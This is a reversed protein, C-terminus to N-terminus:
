MSRFEAITAYRAFWNAGIEIFAAYIADGSSNHDFAEGMLFSSGTQLAPFVCCLMDNQMKDTTLILRPKRKDRTAKKYELRMACFLASFELPESYDPHVATTTPILFHIEPVGYSDSEGANRDVRCTEVCCDGLGYGCDQNWWQRGLYSEGCCTCSMRKVPKARESAFDDLRAFQKEHELIALMRTAEDTTTIIYTRCM